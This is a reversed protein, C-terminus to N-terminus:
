LFVDVSIATYNTIISPPAPIPGGVAPLTNNPEHLSRLERNITSKVRCNGLDEYGKGSGVEKQCQQDLLTSPM